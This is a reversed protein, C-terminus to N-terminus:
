VGCYKLKILDVFHAAAGLFCLPFFVFSIQPRRAKKQCFYFRWYNIAARIKVSKPVNFSCLDKYIYMASQPCQMRSKISNATLGSSQFECLCVIKNFYRFMFKSGIRNWVASEGCYNEGEFEPFPYLRLIDTKVVEAKGGLLKFKFSYDNEKCDLIEYGVKPQILEGNFNAKLGCVGAFENDDKIQTYYFSISELADYPLKDDSDVIYFLDGQAEQAGRNIARHKGGNEQYIYRIRFSAEESWKNVLEHTSDTSGDDVVLWEFDRFSQNCISKYLIPLLHARNYTPTFVTIM